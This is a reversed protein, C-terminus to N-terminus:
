KRKQPFISKYLKRNKLTKRIIGLLAKLRLYNLLNQRLGIILSDKHRQGEEISNTHILGARTAAGYLSEGSGRIDRYMRSHNGNWVKRLQAKKSLKRRVNKKVPKYIPELGKACTLEILDYTEFASDGFSYGALNEKDQLIKSAGQADSTRNNSALMGEVLILQNPPDYGLLTHFKTTLKEKRRTGQYLREVRVSTSLATSDFIHLLVENIMAKIRQEFLGTLRIIVDSALQRYHYHLNSHDYHRQVYLESDTEMREFKDGCMRAFLIFSILKEKPIECPRGRNFVLPMGCDRLSQALIAVVSSSSFYKLMLDRRKRYTIKPKMPKAEELGGM